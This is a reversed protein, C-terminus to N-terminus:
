LPMFTNLYGFAQLYVLFHWLLTSFLKFQSHKSQRGGHQHLHSHPHLLPLSNPSARSTLGAHLPNGWLLAARLPWVTEQSQIPVCDSSSPSPSSTSSPCPPPPPRTSPCTGVTNRRRNQDLFLYLRRHKVHKLFEAIYLCIHLFVPGSETVYRQFFSFGKRLDERRKEKKAQLPSVHLTHAATQIFHGWDNIM